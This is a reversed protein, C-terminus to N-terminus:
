KKITKLKENCQKGWLGDVKLRYVKQYLVVADRTRKGYKGDVTLEEFGSVGKLAWNLAKQLNKIQNRKDILVKIGDNLQYYGRSPLTPFTGTYAKKNTTTTPKTAAAKTEQDKWRLIESIKKDAYYNKSYDMLIGNLYHGDKLCAEGGEYFKYGSGSYVSTHTIGKYCVIDGPKLLKKDIAQKVTMGIPSGVTIRTFNKAVDGTYYSKFSGDPASILYKGNGNKIGLEYLAFRLPVVCTIGVSKGEDINSKAKSFTTM